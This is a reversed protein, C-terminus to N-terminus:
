FEARICNRRICNGRNHNTMLRNHCLMLGIKDIIAIQVVKGAHCCVLGINKEGRTSREGKEKKGRYSDMHTHGFSSFRGMQLKLVSIIKRRRLLQDSADESSFVGLVGAIIHRALRGTEARGCGPANPCKQLM